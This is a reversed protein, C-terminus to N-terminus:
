GASALGDAGTTLSTGAGVLNVQVGSLPAGTRLDTTWVVIEDRDTFVDLGINTVQVWVITPRNNWYLPDDREFQLEPSVVVVLQGTDGNLADSLDISTETFRDAEGDVDVSTDALRDWVSFDFEQNEDYQRELAVKYRVWDSPQVRYIEVSRFLM